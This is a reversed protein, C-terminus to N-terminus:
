GGTIWKMIPTIWIDEPKFFLRHGSANKLLIESYVIGDTSESFSKECSGAVKDSDAYISLIRGKLNKFDPYLKYKQIGAIECGAMIIYNIKPNALQASVCLAIVAGKSHGAVIINEPPVGSNTLNEILEVVKKAYTCPVIKGSRVESVVVYNHDSFAKLIDDYKCDGDPGNTEVYYNHLFFLYSASTDINDPLEMKIQASISSSAFFIVVLFPIVVTFKRGVKTYSASLRMVDGRM